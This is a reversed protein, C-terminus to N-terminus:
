ILSFSPCHQYSSHAVGFQFSASYIKFVLQNATSSTFSTTSAGLGARPSLKYSQTNFHSPLLLLLLLPIKLFFCIYLLIYSAHLILLCCHFVSHEKNLCKKTNKKPNKLKQPTNKTIEGTRTPFQQLYSISFSPTVVVVVVCVGSHALLSSDVVHNNIEAQV